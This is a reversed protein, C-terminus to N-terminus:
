WSLTPLTPKTPTRNLSPSLNFITHRKDPRSMADALINKVGPIHVAQLQFSFTAFCFFMERILSMLINDKSRGTAIVDVCSHNDCHILITQGRLRSGWTLCLIAIAYMERHHIFPLRICDEATFDYFFWENGWFAACARGSADSFFTFKPHIPTTDLFFSIGNYLPAFKIWWAIDAKAEDDLNWTSAQTPLARIANIIRRL